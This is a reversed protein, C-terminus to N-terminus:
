LLGKIAGNIEAGGRIMALMLWLLPKGLLSVLFGLPQWISGFLLTLAGIAMLPAVLPTVLVTLLPGVISTERWGFTWVIVPLTALSASLSASLSRPRRLLVIRQLMPDIWLLGAMAAVSLRFGVDWLWWPRVLLTGLVVAIFLRRFSVPGGSVSLGIYSMVGMTGARVVSPEGGALFSYLFVIFIIFLYKLYGQIFIYTLPTVTSIIISINFGSAAALHLVGSDRFQSFLDKSLSDKSGVLLGSLLGREDNTFFLGLSEEFHSRLSTMVDHILVWAATVRSLERGGNVIEADKLVFENEFSGPVKRELIGTISVERELTSGLNEPVERSSVYVEFQQEHNMLYYKNINRFSQKILVGTVRVREGLYLSPYYSIWVVLRLLVLITFIFWFVFRFLNYSSSHM